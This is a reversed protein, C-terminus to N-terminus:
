KLNQQDQMRVFEPFKVALECKYEWFHKIELVEAAINNGCM